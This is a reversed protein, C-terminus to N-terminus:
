RAYPTFGTHRKKTLKSIIMMNFLHVVWFGWDKIKM